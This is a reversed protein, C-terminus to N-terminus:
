DKIFLKATIQVNIGEESTKKPSPPVIGSSIEKTSSLTISNIDIEYSINELYILYSLLDKFKGDLYISATLYPINSLEDVAKKLPQQEKGGELTEEKKTDQVQQPTEKQKEQIQLQLTINTKKAIEELKIVLDLMEKSALTKSVEENIKLIEKKDKKFKGLSEKKAAYEEIKNREEKITQSTKQINQIKSFIAFVVFVIALIFGTLIIIQFQYKKYFESM